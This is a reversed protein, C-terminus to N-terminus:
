DNSRVWALFEEQHADIIMLKTPATLTPWFDALEALSLHCFQKALDVDRYSGAAIGNIAIIVLKNVIDEKTM